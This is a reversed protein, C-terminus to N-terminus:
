PLTAKMAAIAEPAFELVPPRDPEDQPWHFHASTWTAMRAHQRMFMIPTRGTLQALLRLQEWTPYLTGAEWDDVDPEAAGCAADVEPGYFGMADLALTITDPVVFGSAWQRYAEQETAARRYAAAQARTDAKRIEGATLRQGAKGWRRRPQGTM